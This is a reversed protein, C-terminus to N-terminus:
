SGEEKIGLNMQIELFRHGNYIYRCMKEGYRIKWCDLLNEMTKGSMDRSFMTLMPEGERWDCAYLLVAYGEFNPKFGVCGCEYRVLPLAVFAANRRRQEEEVSVTEGAEGM